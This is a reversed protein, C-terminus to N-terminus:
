STYGAPIRWGYIFEQNEVNSLSFAWVRLDNEDTTTEFDGAYCLSLNM